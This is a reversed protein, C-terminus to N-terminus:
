VQDPQITQLWTLLLPYIRTVHNKQTTKITVYIDEPFVVTAPSDDVGGSRSTPICRELRKGLLTLNSAYATPTCAGRATGQPGARGASLVASERIAYRELLEMPSPRETATPTDVRSFVPVAYYLAGDERRHQDLKSRRLLTIGTNRSRWTQQTFYVFLSFSSILLVVAARRALSSTSYNSM